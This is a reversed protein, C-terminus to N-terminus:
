LTLKVKRRVRKSTWVGDEKCTQGKQVIKTRLVGTALFYGCGDRESWYGCTSCEDELILRTNVASKTNQVIQQKRWITGCKASCTHCYKGYKVPMEKERGCVPCKFLGFMTRGKNYTRKGTERILEM